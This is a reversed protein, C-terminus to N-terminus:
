VEAGEPAFNQLENQPRNNYTGTVVYGKLKTGKLADKDWDFSGGEDEDLAEPDLAGILKIGLDLFKENIYVRLPTGNNRKNNPAIVEFDVVTNISDKKKTTEEKLDVIEMDYWGPDLINARKMDSRSVRMVGM